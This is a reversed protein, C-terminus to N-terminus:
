LEDGLLEAVRMSAGSCGRRGRAALVEAMYEFQRQKDGAGPTIWHDLVYLLADVDRRLEQIEAIQDRNLRLWAWRVVAKTRAWPSARRWLWTMCGIILAAIVALVLGEALGNLM